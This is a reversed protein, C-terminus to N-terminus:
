ICKNKYDGYEKIDPWWSLWLTVKIYNYYDGKFSSRCEEGDYFPLFQEAIDYAIILIYWYDFSPHFGYWESSGGAWFTGVVGLPQFLPIEFM